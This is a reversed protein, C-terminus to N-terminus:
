GEHFLTEATTVSEVTVGLDKILGDSV